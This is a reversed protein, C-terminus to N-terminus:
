FTYKITGTVTTGLDFGIAYFFDADVGVSFHALKTYYEFTPGGSAIPHPAGHFGFDNGGWAGGVVENTYFTEDLLVPSVM